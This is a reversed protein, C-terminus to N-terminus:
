GAPPSSTRFWGAPDVPKGARRIEFHLGPRKRGGSDGVTAITDGAKVQADKERFLQENNGYISLYGNGHDLIIVLGFAPHWDAYAVKGEHIARVNAGRDADIEIGDSRLNGVLTGGFNTTIRGAVPWSLKKRAQAFPSRPDYPDVETARSLEKLLQEKAQRERQMRALSASRNQSDERLTALVQGQKRRASELDKVLGKQQVELNALEADEADIRATLEEISAIETSIANIQTARLRGLYGYYTLNRGFQAPSRQNLLLKLPENRGMFYAAKLQGALDAQTADRAAERRAREEVLQQRSKAREARRSRLSSLNGSAKSVSRDADRLARNQRDIEAKDKQGQRTAQEIQQNLARLEAETARKRDSQAAPLALAALLLLSGAAAWHVRRM